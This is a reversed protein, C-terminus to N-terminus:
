KANLFISQFRSTKCSNCVCLKELPFEFNCSMFGLRIELDIAICFCSYPIQIPFCQKNPKKQPDPMKYVWMVYKM